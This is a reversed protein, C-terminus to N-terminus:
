HVFEGRGKKYYDSRFSHYMQQLEHARCKESEDFDFKAKKEKLFQELDISRLLTGVMNEVEPIGNHTNHYVLQDVLGIRAAQQASIPKCEETLKLAITEGLRRPLSYTWYESGYLGMHKYYPHLVAKSDCWVFDSALSLMVGGAGAGCRVFSIVLKDTTNLVSKTLDDIAVINNTSEEVPDPANEIVNLHIGNSFGDPGGMLVVARIGNDLNNVLSDYVSTLRRAQDTSMAGGYFNFHLYAVGLVEDINYHIEKWALQSLNEHSKPVHQPLKQVLPKLTSHKMLADEAPLKFSGKQKMHSVWVWEKPSKTAFLIAGNMKLVMQGPVFNAKQDETYYQDVLNTTDVTANFYSYTEDAVKVRIGPQGSAANITRAITEASDNEWSFQRLKQTLPTQLGGRPNPYNALSVPMFEPMDYRRLANDVANIAARTVEKHYLESKTCARLPFEETAWIAGADFDNHAQMITVGWNRYEPSLQEYDLLAYDISHAGRDGVIGPHVILCLYNDYVEQPIKKTLFPCIILDPKVHEVANLIDTESNVATVELKYDTTEELHMYMANTLSNVSTSILQIKRLKHPERNLALHYGEDHPSMSDQDLRSRLGEIIPIEATAPKIYASKQLHPASLAAVPRAGGRLVLGKAATNSYSQSIFTNFTQPRRSLPAASRQLATLTRRWM